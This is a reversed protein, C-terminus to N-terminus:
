RQVRPGPSWGAAVTAGQIHRCGHRFRKRVDLGHDAPGYAPHYVYWVTNGIAGCPQEEDPEQTTSQTGFAAEYVLEWIYSAQAVDDNAPRLSLSFSADGSAGSKGGVQFYYTAGRIAPFELLSTPGGADDNCVGPYLGLPPSSFAYEHVSLVTDFSSGATSVTLTGDVPAAFSFWVTAGINGCSQSEGEELTAGTTDV